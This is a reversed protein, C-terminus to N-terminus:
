STRMREKLFQEAETKSMGTMRTLMQKNQEMMAWIGEKEPFYEMVKTLKEGRTGHFLDMLKMVQKDTKMKSKIIERGKLIIDEKVTLKVEEKEVKEETSAEPNEETKEAEKEETATEEVMPTNQPPTVEASEIPGYEAEIESKMNEAVEAATEAKKEFLEKADIDIEDEARKKLKSVLEVHSNYKEIAEIKAQLRAEEAARAQAEAALKAEEEAKIRAEEQKQKDAAAQARLRAQEAAVLDETSKDPNKGVNQLEKSERFAEESEFVKAQVEEEFPIEFQNGGMSNAIIQGINKSVSILETEEFELTFNMQKDGITKSIQLKM